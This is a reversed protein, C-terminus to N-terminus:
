ENVSAQNNANKKKIDEIEYETDKQISQLTAENKKRTREIDKQLEAIQTNRFEMEKRHQEKELNVKQEHEVKCQELAQHYNRKEEEKALQLM